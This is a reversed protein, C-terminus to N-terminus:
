HGGRWSWGDVGATRCRQNAASHFIYEEEIFVSSMGSIAVSRIAKNQSIKAQQREEANCNYQKHDKM